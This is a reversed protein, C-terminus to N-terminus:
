TTGAATYIFADTRLIAHGVRAEAKVTVLNRVVNDQDQEYMNVSLGDTQIIKAKTWDGIIMRNNGINTENTRLLPIGVINVNGSADITLAAGGGPLSYDNPKTNLIKAWVANTVVIGNADYDDESLAAIAQIIKEATVTSSVGSTNGNAAAILQQFFKFDEARLYDEILEPGVFSQMFPLDQLMQKAIRVFGALYDTTVTVETFDYDVQSKLAAPTQTLFSGEGAPKNQRYFKWTGTASPIVDVLDRYHLKRRGRLAPTPSYIAVGNGTLNDAITMNGAAKLDFEYSAKPRKEQAAIKEGHEAFAAKLLSVTSVMDANAPNIIRGGKAKLNEVEELLQKVTAGSETAAKTVEDLKTQFEAGKAELEKTHKKELAEIQEAAEKKVAAIQDASKKKFNGFEASLEQLVELEEAM